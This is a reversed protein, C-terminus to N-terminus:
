MGCATTTANQSNPWRAKDHLLMALADAAEQATDHGGVVAGAFDGNIATAEYTLPFNFDTPDQVEVVSAAILRREFPKNRGTDPMIQHMYGVTTKAIETKM